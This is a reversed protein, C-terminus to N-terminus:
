RKLLGKAVCREILWDVEDLTMNMFEGASAIKLGLVLADFAAEM